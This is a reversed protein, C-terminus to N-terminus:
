LKWFGTCSRRDQRRNMKLLTSLNILKRLWVGLLEKLSIPQQNASFDLDESFRYQDLYCHHLATGGKFILTDKLNSETIIKLVEALFYDKEAVQLPYKLTRRNIIELQQRSIM